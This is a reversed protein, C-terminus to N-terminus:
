LVDKATDVSVGKFFGKPFFIGSTNSRDGRKVARAFDKQSRKKAALLVADDGAALRSVTDMHHAELQMGLTAWHELQMAISRHMVTAAADAAVYLNDAIRVTKM